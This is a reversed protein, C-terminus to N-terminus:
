EVIVRKLLPFSEATFFNVRALERRFTDVGEVDIRMVIFDRGHFCPLLLLTFDDLADAPSEAIFRRADDIGARTNKVLAAANILVAESRKEFSWGCCPRHSSHRYTGIISEAILQESIQIIGAILITIQFVTMQWHYDIQM